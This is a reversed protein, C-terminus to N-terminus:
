LERDVEPARAALVLASIAPQGATPLLDDHVDVEILRAAPGFLEQAGGTGAVRGRQGAQPLVALRTEGVGLARHRSLEAKRGPGREHVVRLGGLAVAVLAARAQDRRREVPARVDRHGQQGLVGRKRGRAGPV